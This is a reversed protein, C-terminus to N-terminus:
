FDAKMTLKYSGDPGKALEWYKNKVGNKVSFEFDEPLIEEMKAMEKLEAFALEVWGTEASEKGMGKLQDYVWKTVKNFLKVGSESTPIKRERKITRRMPREEAGEKGTLRRLMDHWESASAPNRTAIQLCAQVAPDQVGALDVYRWANFEEVQRGAEELEDAVDCATPDVERHARASTSALQREYEELAENAAVDAPTPEGIPVRIIDQLPRDKLGDAIREMHDLRCLAVKYFVEDLTGRALLITVYGREHRGTRGRRQIYRIESPVPEYFIISRVSPIDLGEEAIRTAVLINHKGARFDDLMREQDQQKLGADRPSKTAQGVFRVPRFPRSDGRTGGNLAEIAALLFSATDRFQTFVIVSGALEGSAPDVLEELMELLLRTKPHTEGGEVGKKLFVEVRKFAFEQLLRYNSGAKSHAHEVRERMKRIFEFATPIGQTTILEILHLIKMAQAQVNVLWFFFGARDRGVASSDPETGDDGGDPLDGPATERAIISWLVRGLQILDMKNVQDIPKEKLFGRARIQELREHLLERLSLEVEDYELPLDCDRVEMEIPHMYPAVDPDDPTRITVREMHLRRCLEIVQEQKRGPSATLGLIIPDPCHQLYRTAIENYAYREGTKHCEDLVLLVCGSLDYFRSALDNQLTQPTAFVLNARKFMETRKERSIRGNLEICAFFAKGRGAVDLFKSFSRLHQNVLPRTPALVVVKGWPYRMLRNIAVHLAIVTKGMATPLIVLTNRSSAEKAISVQYERYDITDLSSIYGKFADWTKTAM